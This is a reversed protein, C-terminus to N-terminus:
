NHLYICLCICVFGHVTCKLLCLLLCFFFSVSVCISMYESVCISLYVFEVGVLYLGMALFLFLIFVRYLLLYVPMCTDLNLAIYSYLSRLFSLCISLSVWTKTEGVSCYEVKLSFFPFIFVTEGAM